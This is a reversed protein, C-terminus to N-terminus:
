CRHDDEGVREFDLGGRVDDCMERSLEGLGTDVSLECHKCSYRRKDRLSEKLLDGPPRLQQTSHHVLNEYTNIDASLYM